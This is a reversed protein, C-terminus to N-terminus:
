SPCKQQLLVGLSPPQNQHSLSPPLLRALSSVPHLSHAAQYGILLLSLHGWERNERERDEARGNGGRRRERGKKGERRGEM